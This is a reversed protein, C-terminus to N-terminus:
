AVPYVVCFFGQNLFFFTARVTMKPYGIESFFVHLWLIVNANLKMWPLVIASCRACSEIIQEM